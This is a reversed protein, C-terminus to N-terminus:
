AKLAKKAQFLPLKQPSKNGHLHGRYRRTVRGVEECTVVAKAHEDSLRPLLAAPLAPGERPVRPLPIDPPPYASSESSSRRQAAFLWSSTETQRACAARCHASRLCVASRRGAAAAVTMRQDCPAHEHRPAARRTSTRRQRPEPAPLLQASGGSSGEEGPHRSAHLFDHVPSRAPKEEHPYVVGHVPYQQARRRGRGGQIRTHMWAAFIIPCHKRSAPCM